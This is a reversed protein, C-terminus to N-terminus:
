FLLTDLDKGCLKNMDNDLEHELRVLVLEAADKKAHYVIQAKKEMNM